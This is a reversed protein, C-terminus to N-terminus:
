SYRRCLTPHEEKAPERVGKALRLAKPCIAFSKTPRTAGNTGGLLQDCGETIPVSGCTVPSFAPQGDIKPGATLRRRNGGDLDIQFINSVVLFRDTAFAISAGDASWCPAFTSVPNRPIMRVNGGDADAVFIQLWHRNNIIEISLSIFAVKSGDPSWAPSTAGTKTFRTVNAGDADMAYIERRGDRNSTFLIRGDPSWKPSVDIGPDVTLRTENSGDANVVYIELNGDIARTFAIQKGDRSWAPGTDEARSNTIQTPSSGDANMVYIHQMGARNSSFAIKSGDPSWDPSLDDAPDDTLQALEGDVSMVYIEFNGDRDTN